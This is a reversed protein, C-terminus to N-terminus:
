NEWALGSMGSMIRIIQYEKVISKLVFPQSTVTQVNNTEVTVNDLVSFNLHGSPQNDLPSIAFTYVYFGSDVSNLFKQYPIASNFYNTDRLAFLDNGNSKFNMTIIPSIEKKVNVKKYIKTYYQILKKKRFNLDNLNGIKFPDYSCLYKSDFFLTLEIDYKTLTPSNMFYKYRPSKSNIEFLNDRIAIFDNTYSTPITDSYLYTKIFENYLMKTKLFESQQPDMITSSEFYTKDNTGLIYSIFYIDKILNNFIMRNSSQLKNIYIDPYQVFREILYEHHSKGFLDREVSDLQIGDINIQINISSLTGDITDTILNSINNIKYKISIENYPLALLPLYLSPNKNFWFELPLILRTMNNYIYPKTIKDFMVRHQIDKFVQYKIDMIDKNLREIMNEGIYFDIHEFINKYLDDNFTGKESVQKITTITRTTFVLEPSPEIQQNDYIKELNLVGYRPILSIRNINNQEFIITTDYNLYSNQILLQYNKMDINKYITYPIYNNQIIRFEPLLIVEQTETIVINKISDNTDIIVDVSIYINNSLDYSLIQGEITQLNTTIIISMDNNPKQINSDTTISYVFLGLENGNNDTTYLYGDTNLDFNDFLNINCIQNNLPITITDEIIIQKFNVPDGLVPFMFSQQIIVTIINDTISIYMNNVEYGNIFYHYKDSFLLVLKDPIIFSIKGEVINYNSIDFNNIVGGFTNRTLELDSVYKNITFQYTNDTIKVNNSLICPFMVDNLDLPNLLTNSIFRNIAQPILPLSQDYPTPFTNSIDFTCIFCSSIDNIPIEDIDTFQYIFLEKKEMIEVMQPPFEGINAYHVINNMVLNFYEYSIIINLINDTVFKMNNVTVKDNILFNNHINKLDIYNLYENIPEDLTIKYLIQFTWTLNNKISIVIRPNIFNNLNGNVVIKYSSDISIIKYFIDNNCFYSTYNNSSVNLSINLKILTISTQNTTSNYVYDSVSVFTEAQVQINNVIGIATPVIIYNDFTMLEYTKYKLVPFLSLNIDCIYSYVYGLSLSSSINYTKYSSIIFNNDIDLNEHSYFNIQNKNVFINEIPVSYKYKDMFFNINYVNYTNYIENELTIKYPYLESSTDINYNIDFPINTLYFKEYNKIPYNFWMLSEYPVDYTIDNSIIKDLSIKNTGLKTQLNFLNINSRNLENYLENKVFQLLLDTYNETKFQYNYISSKLDIIRNSLKVLYKLVDILKVGYLNPPIINNILCNIETQMITMDKTVVYNGSDMTLTYQNNLICDDIINSDIYLHSGDFIISSSIDKSFNNIYEIPNEWFKYYKFIDNLENYFQQEFNTVNNYDIGLESINTINFLIDDIESHCFFTNVSPDGILDMNYSLDPFIIINYGYILNNIIGQTNSNSLLSWTDWPKLNNFLVGKDFNTDYFMNEFSSNINNQLTDINFLKTEINNIYFYTNNNLVPYETIIDQNNSIDTNISTINLNLNGVSYKTTDLNNSIDMYYVSNNINYSYYNILTNPTLSIPLKVSELGFDKSYIDNVYINKLTDKKILSKVYNTQKMYINKFQVPFEKTIAYFKNNDKIVLCKTTKDLYFTDTFLLYQDYFTIETRYNNDVYEVIGNINAVLMIWVILENSLKTIINTQKIVQIDRYDFMNNCNLNIPYIKDLYFESTYSEVSTFLHLKNPYEILCLHTIYQENQTKELLLHYTTDFINYDSISSNGSEVNLRILLLNDVFIISTGSISETTQQIEYKVINNNSLDYINYSSNTVIPRLYNTKDLIYNSILYQKDRKSFYIQVNASNYMNKDLTIINNNINIIHNIHNNILIPQYYFLDYGSIDLLNNITIMNNTCTGGIYRGNNNEFYYTQNPIKLVRTYLTENPLQTNHKYFTNMHEFFINDSNNIIQSSSDFILNKMVFPQYPFYFTGTSAIPETSSCYIVNENICNIQIMNNQITNLNFDFFRDGINFNYNYTNYFILNTNDSIDYLFLKIYNGENFSFNSIDINNIVLNNSNDILYKYNSNNNITFEVVPEIKPIIPFDNKRYLLYFGTNSINIKNYQRILKLDYYKTFTNLGYVEFINDNVMIMDDINLMNYQYSMIYDEGNPYISNENKIMILNRAFGYVNYSSATITMDVVMSSGNNSLVKCFQKGNSNILILYKYDDTKDYKIINSNDLHEIYGINILSSYLVDSSNHNHELKNLTGVIYLGSDNNFLMTNYYIQQRNILQNNYFYLQNGVINIISNSNILTYDNPQPLTYPFNNINCLIPFNAIQTSTSKYTWVYTYNGDNNYLKYKKFGESLTLTFVNSSNIIFDPYNSILSNTPLSPTLITGSITDSNSIIYNSGTYVNGDDTYLYYTPFINNNPTITIPQIYYQGSTDVLLLIDLEIEDIPMTKNIFDFGYVNPLKANNNSYPDIAPLINIAYSNTDNTQGYYQSHRTRFNTDAVLYDSQSPINLSSDYFNIVDGTAYYSYKPLMNIDDMKILKLNANPYVWFNYNGDPISSIINIDSFNSGKVIHNDFRYYYSPNFNKIIYDKNDFVFTINNNIFKFPPLLREKKMFWLDYNMDIDFYITNNNIIHNVSSPNIKNKMIIFLESIYISPILSLSCYYNTVISNKIIMKSLDYSSIPNNNDFVIGFMAFELKNNGVLCNDYYTYFNNNILIMNTPLTIDIVYIYKTNNNFINSSLDYNISIKYSNYYLKLNDINYNIMNNYVTTNIINMDDLLIYSSTTDITNDINIINLSDSINKVSVVGLYNFIEEDYNNFGNYFIESSVKTEDKIEYLGIDSTVNNVIDIKNNNFYYEKGFNTVTINPIPYLLEITYSTTTEINKNIVNDLKYKYGYEEQYELENFVNVLSMNDTIYSINSTLVTSVNNLYSIIDNSLKDNINYYKKTQKSVYYNSLFFKYLGIGLSLQESTLDYYKPTMLNYIDFGYCSYYSINTPNINQITNLVTDSTQGCQSVLTLTDELLKVYLGTSSEMVNIINSYLQNNTFIMDIYKLLTVVLTEKSIYKEANFITDFRVSIQKNTDDTYFQHSYLPLIKNVNNNNLMIDVTYSTIPINYFYYLPYDKTNTIFMMPQHYFDINLDLNNSNNKNYYLINYLNPVKQSPFYLKINNSSNIVDMNINSNIFYLSTNTTYDENIKNVPVIIRNNNNYLIIWLLMTSPIYNLYIIINGNDDYIQDYPTNVLGFDYERLTIKVVNDLNINTNLLNNSIDVDIKKNTNNLYDIDLQYFHDINHNINCLILNNDLNNIGSIDYLIISQVSDIITNNSIYPTMTLSDGDFDLINCIPIKINRILKLTLQINNNNNYSYIILSNNIFNFKKTEIYSNNIMVFVNDYVPKNWNNITINNNSITFDSTTFIDVISMDENNIDYQQDTFIKGIRINNPRKDFSSINVSGFFSECYVLNILEQRIVDTNINRTININHYFTLDKNNQQYDNLLYFVNQLGSNKQKETNYNDLNDILRFYYSMILKNRWLVLWYYSNHLNDNIFFNENKIVIEIYKYLLYVYLLSMDVPQIYQPDDFNSLDSLMDSKTSLTIYTNNYQLITDELLEPNIDNYFDDFFINGSKFREYLVKLISWTKEKEQVDLHKFLVKINDECNYYLKVYRDYLESNKIMNNNYFDLRQNWELFFNNTVDNSDGVVSNSVGLKYKKWFTFSKVQSTFTPFLSQLVFLIFHSNNQLANYVYGSIDLNNQIAYNNAFDCDYVPNNIITSNLSFYQRVENSFILHKTNDVFINYNVFNDYIIKDLKSNYKKVLKTLSLLETFCNYQNAVKNDLIAMWKEIWNDFYLRILPILQNLVSPKSTFIKVLNGYNGTTIINLNQLLNNEVDKGDIYNYTQWQNSLNFYQSPILYYTSNISNYFLYTKMNSYIISLENLIVPDTITSTETITKIINFFPIDVILHLGGLLDCVKEIKFQGFSNFNKVGINKLVQEMCFNTHKKYITKFFTIEPNLILPEDESGISLLQLLGGPM